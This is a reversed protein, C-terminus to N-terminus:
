RALAIRVKHRRRAAPFPSPSVRLCVRVYVCPPKPHVAPPPNARVRSIYRSKSPAIYTTGLSEGERQIERPGERGRMPISPAISFHMVRIASIRPSEEIPTHLM